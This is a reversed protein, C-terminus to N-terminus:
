RSDKTIIDAAISVAKQVVEGCKGTKAAEMFLKMDEPDRFNYARGYQHEVVRSCRTSGFEASFKEFFEDAAKLSPSETAYAKGDKPGFSLGLALLSGTVAGCTEGRSAIGGAFLRLAPIINDGKLDFEDNLACFSAQSCAGYKQMYKGVKEELEGTIEEKSKGAKAAFVDSIIGPMAMLALGATCCATKVIFTRRTDGNRGLPDSLLANIEDSNM